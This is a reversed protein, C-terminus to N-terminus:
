TTTGRGTCRSSRSMPARSPWRPSTPHLEADSWPGAHGMVPTMLAHNMMYPMTMDHQGDLNIAVNVRGHPGAPDDRLAVMTALHGGASVGFSALQQQRANALRCGLGIKRTAARGSGCARCGLRPRLCM